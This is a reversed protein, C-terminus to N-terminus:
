NLYKNRFSELWEIQEEIEAVLGWERLKGIYSKPMAGKHYIDWLFKTMNQHFLEKENTFIKFSKYGDIYSKKMEEYLAQNNYGKLYLLCYVNLFLLSPPPTKFSRHTILRIAGRLHKISDIPSGATGVINDDVVRIYKNVMEYYDDVNTFEVDDKGDLDDTLSFLEGNPAHYDHRAYKSNFYFYLDDKMLENMALWQEEPNSGNMCFDRIDDLANKRKIAVKEYVFETLYALCKHIENNGKMGKARSIEQEAKADSYYRMLFEKLKEYYGGEPLKTSVIRYYGSDKSEYKQTFDDILGICCMRYIAKAVDASDDKTYRVLIVLQENEPLHELPELFGVSNNTPKMEESDGIFYQIPKLSLITHMAMKEEFSGKFNNDFFYMNTEYDPSLYEISEKSIYLQSQKLYSQFDQNNLWTGRYQSDVLRLKCSLYHKCGGCNNLAFAKNDITCRLKIMDSSPTCIDIQSEPISLNFYSIVKQLDDYRFWKNRILGIPYSANYNRNIRALKYDSLLIVALAMRRDRGARGAEQVFSELSSSYNMNITFRVNPKDIGMGFAKTAVMLPSKNERFLNMNEMSMDDMDDTNGSGMFTAVLPIYEKLKSANVNVSLGTTNKHPCFIIGAQQYFSQRKYFIDDLQTTLDTSEINPDAERENFREKIQAISGSTQLERIFDPIRKIYSVLFDSKSKQADDGMRFTDIPFPLPWDIGSNEIREVFFKDPQFRVPVREVKYQLELRNCNEYRVVTDESLPFAGNGSLEREVDALVDFSATATLGFLTIHSSYNDGDKPLVYQYLNRGLHLYSFRFDQGWESVCHVEDIVGYCFYVGLQQMNKLRQRFKYICLREPSFFVMLLRSYEMMTERQEREHTGITANIFTCCDIGIKILGEYQDAMLSRLPDVIITVGPQLLAALQYTLSKGGGTPLLGIVSQLQLAQSLIPLQGPRFDDKRFLFRLFYRIDDIRESINEYEGQENRYALPKYKIRDSTYIIREAVHTKSSRVNFYCNNKVRFESFSVHQADAIEDFSHDIVMDWEKTLLTKNPSNFVKNDIHLGSNTYNKNIITLNIIPLHFDEYDASLSSIHKVMDSVESIALAVCPYDKEIAIINWEEATIDLKGCILAEILTKEIRAICIPVVWLLSFEELAETVLTKTSYSLTGLQEKLQSLKFVKQFVDEVFLSAKTPLGRTIINNLVALIPHVDDYIHAGIDFPALVDFFSNDRVTQKHNLHEWEEIIDIRFAANFQKAPFFAVPRLVSNSKSRTVKFCSVEGTYSHGNSLTGMWPKIDQYFIEAKSLNFWNHFYRLRPNQASYYGVCIMYSRCHPRSLMQAMKKLSVSAIDLINSFLHIAIPCEVNIEEICQLDSSINDSPLYCNKMSIPVNPISQEINFCAREIAVDSPEVLTVKKLEGDCRFTKFQENFCISAIGQGCAWDYIEFDDDLESFPFHELADFLKHKHMEGYAAMYCDLEWEEKLVKRGHDTPVWPCTKYQIPVCSSATSIIDDIKVPFMREIKDRYISM